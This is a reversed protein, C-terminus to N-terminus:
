ADYRGYVFISDPTVIGAAHKAFMPRGTLSHEGLVLGVSAQLILGSQDNADWDRGGVAIVSSGRLSRIPVTDLTIEETGSRFVDIDLWDYQLWARNRLPTTEGLQVYQKSTPFNALTGLLVRPRPKPRLDAFREFLAEFVAPDATSSILGAAVLERFVARQADNLAM